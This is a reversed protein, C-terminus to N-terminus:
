RKTGERNDCVALLHDFVPDNRPRGVTLKTMCVAAHTENERSKHSNMGIISQFNGIGNNKLTSICLFTESNNQLM